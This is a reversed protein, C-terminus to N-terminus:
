MTALKARIAFGKALTDIYDEAQKQSPYIGSRVRFIVDGGRNLPTYFANIGKQHLSIVFEKAKDEHRTVFIEATYQEAPLAKKRPTEMKATTGIEKYFYPQIKEPSSPKSILSQDSLSEHIVFIGAGMIVFALSVAAILWKKIIKM